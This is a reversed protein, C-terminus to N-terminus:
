FSAFVDSTIVARNSESTISYNIALNILGVVPIEEFVDKIPIHRNILKNLKEEVGKVTNDFLIGEADDAIFTDITINLTYKYDLLSINVQEINDIGVVVMNSEREESFDDSEIIKVEEINGLFKIIKKIIEKRKM